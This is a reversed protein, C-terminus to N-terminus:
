GLIDMLINKLTKIRYPLFTKKLGRLTGSQIQFAFQCLNVPSSCVFKNLILKAYIPAKMLSSVLLFLGIYKRKMSPKVFFLRNRILIIHILFYSTITFQPFSLLAQKNPKKVDRNKPCLSAEKTTPLVCSM